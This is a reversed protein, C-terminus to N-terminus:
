GNAIVSGSALAARLLVLEAPQIPFKGREIRGLRRHSTGAAAGMQSLSLGTAQRWRRIEQGNPVVAALRVVRL